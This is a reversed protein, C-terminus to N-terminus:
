LAGQRRAQVADLFLALRARAEAPIAEPATMIAFDLARHSPCPATPPADALAEIVAKAKAVNARMVAVVAEVSVDDHGTHWCDFDTVLAMTCYALEAERALRAEPLNTMGIVAVNPWTRYLTSEARTSFQPGEICVYAGGLRLEVGARAAAAQVAARTRASTPEAFQM